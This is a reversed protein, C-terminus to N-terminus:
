RNKMKQSNATGLDPAPGQSAHSNKLCARQRVAEFLLVAACAAANLSDVVGPVRESMPVRVTRAPEQLWAPPLGADEAGIVLAAPGTLDPPQTYVDEGTLAASIISVGRTTLWARWAETTNGIVPLSFVAGTSARIANPNFADVVGDAILLADAGAAAATRAMAGLNGPKALGVAILFLPAAGARTDPTPHRTDPGLSAHTGQGIGSVRFGVGAVDEEWRPQEVVAILGHPTDLYAMKQLVAPTVEYWACAEGVHERVFALDPDNGAMLEPCHWVERVALGAAVARPVERRGEAVFLGTADRERHKRLGCVAAVRPNHVSTISMTPRPMAGDM